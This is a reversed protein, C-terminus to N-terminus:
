QGKYLSFEVTDGDKLGFATRLDIPSILEAHIRLEPVWTWFALIGPSRDFIIIRHYYMGVEGHFDFGQTTPDFDWGLESFGIYKLLLLNFPKELHLNLTGPIVRLGTLKELEKLEDPNSMEDTAGGRGTKVRGKFSEM